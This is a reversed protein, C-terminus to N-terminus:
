KIVAVKGIQQGYPSEVVWYYLGTVIAENNRNILDWAERSATGSGPPENHELRDVLDGDLTYISVTCENPLNAFWIARAREAWTEDSRNELGRSAYNGDIRYPNPYCYVNLHGDALVAAGQDAAFVEVANQIPASELPELDKPPHGFDFASVSVWYPVNPLLDNIVYEYEYYRMRGAEDVDATDYAAEPYLKHINAPDLLDSANYDVTEFYWLSGNHSLPNDHSYASPDLDEGYITRLSDLTFPLENLIFRRRRSDWRYRNFDLHDHSAIMTFEEPRRSRAIYVRYGEFDRVGSFPDFASETDRGNWRVTIRNNETGVRVEPPPPPAAGRFDPVGDGECFVQTSEATEPDVYWIYRGSDGDGDTDVGPNDYIRKAWKINEILDSWDLQGAFHGPSLTDFIERYAEPDWHIDEGICLVITFRASGYPEITVPGYSTVFEPLHGRAITGAQHHAPLWGEDTYDVMAEHGPYDIEPRAMMYYKDADSKPEGLGGDAFRRFPYEYTGSQRPGWNFYSSWSNSFWNFNNRADIAPMSLSAIAFASSTRVFNWPFSWSWGDNDRIYAARIPETGCDAYDPEASYIYGAVDDSPAYPQEGRHHVCGVYYLGAYADKITERGLNKLNYDVIIFDKAYKFSWSYSTQTVEINLPRHERRDWSNAPVFWEREFTDTFTATFQQEAKARFDYYPSNPLSSKREIQGLPWVDPWFEMPYEWDWPNWDVDIAVSVLTDKNVIGGVWLAAYYGHQIRSYDPHYFSPAQKNMGLYEYNFINGLIGNNNMVNLLLGNNHVVHDLYPFDAAAKGTISEKTTPGAQPPLGNAPWRALTSGAVISILILATLIRQPQFTVKM